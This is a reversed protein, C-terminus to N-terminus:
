AADARMKLRQRYATGAWIGHTDRDRLAEDLCERAVPCTACIARALELSEGRDPFFVKAGVGRCAAHKHWAPPTLLRELDDCWDSRDPACMLARFLDTTIDREM